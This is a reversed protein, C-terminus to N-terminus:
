EGVRIEGWYAAEYAWGTPQNLIEIAVTKGGHAPAISGSAAIVTVAIVVLSIRAGCKM